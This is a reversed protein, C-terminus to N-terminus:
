SFISNETEIVEAIVKLCDSSSVGQGKEFYGNIENEYFELKNKYKEISVRNKMTEILLKYHNFFQDQTISNKFIIKYLSYFNLFVWNLYVFTHSIQIWFEKKYEDFFADTKNMNVLLLNAKKFEAEFDSNLKLIMRIALLVPFVYNFVKLFQFLFNNMGDNHFQTNAFVILGLSILWTPIIWFLKGKLGVRYTFAVVLHIFYSQWLGTGEFFSDFGVLYFLGFILALLISQALAGTNFVIM